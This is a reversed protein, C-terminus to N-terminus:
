EFNTTFDPMRRGTEMTTGEIKRFHLLFTRVKILNTPDSLPALFYFTVRNDHPIKWFDGTISTWESKRIIEESQYAKAWLAWKVETPHHVSTETKGVIM